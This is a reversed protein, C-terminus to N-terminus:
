IAFLVVYINNKGFLYDLIESGTTFFGVIILKLSASFPVMVPILNVMAKQKPRNSSSIHAKPNAKSREKTEKAIVLNLSEMKQLWQRVSTYDEVPHSWNLFSFSIFLHLM